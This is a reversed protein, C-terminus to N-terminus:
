CTSFTVIMGTVTVNAKTSAVGATNSAKCVYDGEDEFVSEPIELKAVGHHFSIHIVDDSSLLQFVFLLSITKACFTNDLMIVYIFSLTKM